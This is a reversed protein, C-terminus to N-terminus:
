ASGATIARTAAAPTTTGALMKTGRVATPPLTCIWSHLGSTLLPPPLSVWESLFGAVTGLCLSMSVYLCLSLSVSLCLSLSVSLCLSLSVSLGLSLSVSLCLSLSVSLCLSLSVSLCLSLSVSLSILASYRYFSPSMMYRNQAPAVTATRQEPTCRRAPRAPDFVESDGVVVARSQPVLHQSGRSTVSIDAAVHQRRLVGGSGILPSATSIHTVPTHVVADHATRMACGLHSSVGLTSSSAQSYLRATAACCAAVNCRHMAVAIAAPLWVEGIISTSPPTRNTETGGTVGIRDHDRHPHVMTVPMASCRCAELSLSPLAPPAALLMSVTTGLGCAAASAHQCPVSSGRELQVHMCVRSLLLAREGCTCARQARRPCCSSHRRCCTAIIILRPAAVSTPSRRASLMPLVVVAISRCRPRVLRRTPHTALGGRPCPLPTTCRPCRSPRATTRHAAHRSRSGDCPTCVVCVQEDAISALLLLLPLLLLAPVRRAVGSAM